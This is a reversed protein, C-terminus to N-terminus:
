AEYWYDEKNGGPVRARVFADISYTQTGELYAPNNFKHIEKLIGIRLENKYDDEYNDLRGHTMKILTRMRNIDDWVELNNWSGPAVVMFTAPLRGKEDLKKALEVHEHYNYVQQRSYKRYVAQLNDVSISELEEKSVLRDGSSRLIWTCRDAVTGKYIRRQIEDRSQGCISNVPGDSTEQVAFCIGSM